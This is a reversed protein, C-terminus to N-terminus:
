KYAFNQESKKFKLIIETLDFSELVRAFDHLFCFSFCGPKEVSAYM